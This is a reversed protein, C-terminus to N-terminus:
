GEPGHGAEVLDPQLRAAGFWIEGDPGFAIDPGAGSPLGPELPFLTWQEEGVAKVDLRAAGEQDIVWIAGDLAAALTRLGQSPGVPGPHSKWAGRDTWSERTASVLWGEDNYGWLTGDPTIARISFGSGLARGRGYYTWDLGDLRAVFFSGQTGEWGEMWVSGDPAAEVSNILKEYVTWSQGDYRSLAFGNAVWADGNATFAVDLINGTPLAEGCGALTQWRSQVFRQVTCGVGAWLSGDPATALVSVEADGLLYQWGDDPHFRSVGRGPTSVSHDGFGLWATGDPTVAVTTPVTEMPGDRLMTWKGGHYIGLGLATGVAVQGAPGTAVPRISVLGQGRTVDIWEGADRYLLSGGPYHMSGATAVWPTGDAAFSLDSILGSVGDVKQWRGGELSLDQAPVFQYVGEWLVSVWVESDPGTAVVGINGNPLGHEGHYTIWRDEAPLYRGVGGATAAWVEGDAAASLDSTPVTSPYGRWNVGDFRSVGRNTGVWVTGDAGVALARIGSALMGDADAQPQCTSGYFRCLTERTWLWLTGDPARAVGAVDVLYRVYDGTDLDWHVLGGTGIVAWLTGDVAFALSHISNLSDYTTWGAGASRAV